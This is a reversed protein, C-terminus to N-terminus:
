FFSGCLFSNRRVEFCISVMNIWLQNKVKEIIKRLVIKCVIFYSLEVEFPITRDTSIRNFILAVRPHKLNGFTKNEM